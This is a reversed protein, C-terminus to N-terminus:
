RIDATLGAAMGDIVSGSGDSALFSEITFDTASPSYGPAIDAKVTCFDGASFGNPSAILVRVRAPYTGTAATYLAAAITGNQAAGSPTVVGADTVPPNSSKLSVGAPLNVTVDIGYITGTGSSALTVDAKTVGGGGGGSCATILFLSCAIMLYASKKM